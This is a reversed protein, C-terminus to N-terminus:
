RMPECRGTSPGLPRRHDTEIALAIGLGLVAANALATMWGIARRWPVLAALAGAFLPIALIAYCLM